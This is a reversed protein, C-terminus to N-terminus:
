SQLRPVIRQALETAIAIRQHDDIRRGITLIFFDDGQKVILQEANFVAKEGVGPVASARSRFSEEATRVYSDFERGTGYHVELTVNEASPSVYQCATGSGLGEPRSPKVEAGLIASAEEPTVLSCPDLHPATTECGAGVSAGGSCSASLCVLLFTIGALKAFTL